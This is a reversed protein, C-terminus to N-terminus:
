FYRKILRYVSDYEKKAWHIFEEFRTLKYKQYYITRHIHVPHSILVGAVIVGAAILTIDNLVEGLVISSAITGVLPDLYFISASDEARMYELARYFIILGIAGAVVTSFALALLSETSAQRIISVDEFFVAALMAVLGTVFWRTGLLAYINQETIVKKSHLIIGALSAASLLLLGNGILEDSSGSEIAPAGFMLIGGTFAVLSGALAKNSRPEGLFLVSGVYVLIPTLLFIVSANIAQTLTLAYFWSLGMTLQGVIQIFVHKSQANSMSQGALYGFIVMILGGFVYRMGAYLFPPITELGIKGVVSNLALFLNAFIMAAIPYQRILKNM